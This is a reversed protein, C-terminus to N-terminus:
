TQNSTNRYSSAEYDIQSTDGYTHIIIYGCRQLVDDVFVDREIRSQNKHSSDDLEILEVVRMKDVLAFDVHKSRIKNFYANSDAYSLNKKTEVLDALRIKTLIQLNYNNAIPILKTYFYYENKTLLYKRQYPFFQQFNLQETSIPENQNEQQEKQIEKKKKNEILTWIIAIIISIIIAGFIYKIM